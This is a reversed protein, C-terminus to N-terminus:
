NVIYWFQFINKNIELAYLLRLTNFLFITSFIGQVCPKNKFLVGIKLSVTNM